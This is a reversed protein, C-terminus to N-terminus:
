LNLSDIAINQNSLKAEFIIRLNRAENIKDLMYCILPAITFTENKQERLTDLLERSLRNEVESSSADKPLSIRPPNEIDIMMSDIEKSSYSLAKARLKTNINIMAARKKFYDLLLKNKHEKLTAFIHGFVAKDVMISLLQADKVKDVGKLKLEFSKGLVSFDHVKACVKLLECPFSGGDMVLADPDESSFPAKLYVKLNHADIDLLFLNTLEKNPSVENVFSYTKTLESEIISELDDSENAQGYAKDALIKLSDEYSKANILNVFDSKKLLTNELAKVRGSTFEYSYGGFPDKNKHM